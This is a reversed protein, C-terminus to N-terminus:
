RGFWGMLMSFGYLFFFRVDLQEKQAFGRKGQKDTGQGIFKTARLLPRDENLLEVLEDVCGRNTVFVMARTEQRQEGDRGATDDGEGDEMRTGFHQILLMKLTEMKPHPGFGGARNRLGEVEKMLTQFRQDTRLQGQATKNSKTKGTEESDRGDAVEKLCTYCMQLSAEM